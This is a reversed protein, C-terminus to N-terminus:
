ESEAISRDRQSSLEDKVDEDAEEANEIRLERESKFKVHWEPEMPRVPKITPETEKKTM